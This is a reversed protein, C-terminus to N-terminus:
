MGSIVAMALTESSKGTNERFDTNNYSEQETDSRKSNFQTYPTLDRKGMHSDLKGTPFVTRERTPLHGQARAAQSPSLGPTTGLIESVGHGLKRFSQRRRSAQSPLAAAPRQLPQARPQGMGGADPLRLSCSSARKM